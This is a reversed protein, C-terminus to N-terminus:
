ELRFTKLAIGSEENELENKIEDIVRKEKRQLCKFIGVTASLTGSGLLYASNIQFQRWSESQEADGYRVVTDIMIKGMLLVSVAYIATAIVIDKKINKIEQRM